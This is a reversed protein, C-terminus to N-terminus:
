SIGRRIVHQGRERSRKRLQGIFAFSGEIFRLVRLSMIFIILGPAVPTTGAIEGTGRTNNEEQRGCRNDLKDWLMRGRLV